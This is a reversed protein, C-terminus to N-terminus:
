AYLFYKPIVIISNFQTRLFCHPNWSQNGRGRGRGRWPPFHSLYLFFLLGRPKAQLCRSNVSTMQRLPWFVTRDKDKHCDHHCDLLWSTAEWKVRPLESSSFGTTFTWVRHGRPVDTTVTRGILEKSLLCYDRLGASPSNHEQARRHRLKERQIIPIIMKNEMVRGQFVAVVLFFFILLSHWLQKLHYQLVVSWASGLTIFIIIGLILPKNWTLFQRLVSHINM